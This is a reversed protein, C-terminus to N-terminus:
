EVGLVSSIFNSVIPRLIASGTCNYNSSYDAVCSKSDESYDYVERIKTIESTSMEYPDYNKNLSIKSSEIGPIYLVDKNIHAKSLYPQYLSFKYEINGDYGYDKANIGCTDGSLMNSKMLLLQYELYKLDEIPLQSFKSINWNVWVESFFPFTLFPETIKNTLGLNHLDKEPDINVKVIGGSKNLKDIIKFKKVANKFEEIKDSDIIYGIRYTDDVCSLIDEVNDKIYLYLIPRLNELRILSKFQEKSNIPITIKVLNDINIKNRLVLDVFDWFDDFELEKLKNIILQIDMLEKIYHKRNFILDSELKISSM